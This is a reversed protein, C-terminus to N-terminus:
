SPQDPPTDVGVTLIVTGNEELVPYAFFSYYRVGDSRHFLLRAVRRELEFAKCKV